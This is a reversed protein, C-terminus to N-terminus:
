EFNSEYYSDTSFYFIPRMISSSLTLDVTITQNSFQLHPRMISNSLAPVYLGLEFICGCYYDPQFTSSPGWIQAVWLYMWLLLWTPFHFISDWIQAVWLQIRLLLWTPFNFISGWIQTVWIQRWLQAVRFHLSSSSLILCKKM